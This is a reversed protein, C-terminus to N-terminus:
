WPSPPKHHSSIEQLWFLTESQSSPPNQAVCTAGPAPEGAANAKANLSPPLPSFSSQDQVKIGRAENKKKKQLFGSLFNRLSDTHWWNWMWRQCFHAALSLALDEERRQTQLGSSTPWFAFYTSPLVLNGPRAAAQFQPCICFQFNNQLIWIGSGSCLATQTLWHLVM